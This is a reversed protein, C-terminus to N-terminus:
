IHLIIGHDHTNYVTETVALRCFNNVLDGSAPADYGSGAIEQKRYGRLLVSTKIRASLDSTSPELIPPRTAPRGKDAHPLRHSAVGDRRRMRHTIRYCRGCKVVTVPLPTISPQSRRSISVASRLPKGATIQM